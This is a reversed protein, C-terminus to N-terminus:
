RDIYTIIFLLYPFHLRALFSSSCGVRLVYPLNPKKYADERVARLTVATRRVRERATANFTIGTGEEEMTATARVSYVSCDM